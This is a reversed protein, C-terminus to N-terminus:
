KGASEPWFENLVTAMLRARLAALKKSAEAGIRAADSEGTHVIQEAEAQASARASQLTSERLRDAETRAEAYAAEAADRAKGLRAQTAERAQQLLADVELEVTKLQKLAETSATPITGEGHAM